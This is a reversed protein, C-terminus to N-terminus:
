GGLEDWGEKRHEEMVWGDWEVKGHEMVWWIGDMKRHMEM